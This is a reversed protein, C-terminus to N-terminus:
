EKNQIHEIIKTFTIESIDHEIKCADNRAIDEPIGLRMFYKTLITHRQLMTDAVKFGKETLDIEGKQNVTIYGNEKLNKVARSISPKSYNMSKAIDLSIVTGKENKLMLIRELYDESSEYLKM